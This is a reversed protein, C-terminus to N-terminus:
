KAVAAAAQARRCTEATKAELSTMLEEVEGDTNKTAHGGRNLLYGGPLHFPQVQRDLYLAGPQLKQKPAACLWAIGEAGQYPTRLPSLLVKGTRGYASAVGPTDGRLMIIHLLLFTCLFLLPKCFKTNIQNLKGSSISYHLYLFLFRCRPL